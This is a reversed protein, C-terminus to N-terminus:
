LKLGFYLHDVQEAGIRAIGPMNGWQSFGFKQLIARSAPNKALLVAVLVSIGLAPAAGIVNEMMKKGIGKGRHAKHVYYSVERVHDLAQRGERYYSLSIWGLVREEEIAVFVPCTHPPHRAFWERTYEMDVPELHATSYGEGVAQNYILNISSLATPLAPRIQM